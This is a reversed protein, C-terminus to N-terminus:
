KNISILSPQRSEESRHEFDNSHQIGNFSQVLSLWPHRRKMLSLLPLKSDPLNTILDQMSAGHVRYDVLIEPCQCGWMGKEAICCWFDFDEWGQPIHAYGGVAAWCEKRILATADITNGGVLLEPLYREKGMIANGNGFQQMLPYVFAAQDNRIAALLTECAKPRLRDDPDLPLVFTTEAADFAANRTRGLGSNVTNSLLIARNFRSAHARIWAEAIAFSNDTSADNVVVLDLSQLTQAAV